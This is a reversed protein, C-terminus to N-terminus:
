MEFYIACAIEYSASFYAGNTRWPETQQLIYRTLFIIQNRMKKYKWFIKKTRDDLKNKGDLTSVFINLFSLRGCM